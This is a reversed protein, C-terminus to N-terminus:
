CLKPCPLRSQNTVAFHWGKKCMLTVFEPTHPLASVLPIVLRTILSLTQARFVQRQRCIGSCGALMVSKPGAKQGQSGVGRAYATAARRQVASRAQM